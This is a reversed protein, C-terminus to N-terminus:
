FRIFQPPIKETLWVDNASKFFEFGAKHMDQSAIKLIIPKGRRQGVNTATEIDRSLHVHHRNRKQLGEKKIADIFKEVTGHYLFEPPSQPVLQLDVEISHGQSARILLGKECFAFRKKNNTQVIRTLDDRTFRLWGDDQLAQLLVSVEVFGNEDLVIGITEPKHRLVYSLFKSAKRDDRPTKDKM